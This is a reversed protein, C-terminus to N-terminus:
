LVQQLKSSAFCLQLHLVSFVNAVIQFNPSEMIVTPTGSAVYKLSGLRGQAPAKSLLPVVQPVTTCLFPYMAKHQAPQSFHACAPQFQQPFRCITFTTAVPIGPAANRISGRQKHMPAQLPTTCSSPSCLLSPALMGLKLTGSSDCIIIYNYLHSKPQHASINPAFLGYQNIHGLASNYIIYMSIILLIIIM